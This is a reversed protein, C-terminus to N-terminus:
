VADTRRGLPAPRQSQNAGVPLWGNAVTTIPPNILAVSSPTHARWRSVAARQTAQGTLTLQKPMCLDLRGSPIRVERGIGDLVGGVL